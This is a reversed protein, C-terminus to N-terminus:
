NTVSKLGVVTQAEDLVQDNANVMQLKGVGGPVQSSQM